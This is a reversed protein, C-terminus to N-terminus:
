GSESRRHDTLTQQVNERVMRKRQATLKCMLCHARHVISSYECNDEHGAAFIQIGHNLCYQCSRPRRFVQNPPAEEM